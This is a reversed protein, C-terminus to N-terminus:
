KKAVVKKVIAFDVVVFKKAFDKGQLIGEVHAKAFETEEQNRGGIHWGINRTHPIYCYEKWDYITFPFTTNDDKVLELEWEYQVKEEEDEETYTPQGLIEILKDLTTTLTTGHFSTGYIDNQNTIKQVKM